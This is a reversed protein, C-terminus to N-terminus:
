RRQGFSKRMKPMGNASRTGTRSAPCSGGGHAHTSHSRCLIRIDRFGANLVADAAKQVLPTLQRAHNVHTHLALQAGREFAKKALRAFGELVKPQLFHQPLGM